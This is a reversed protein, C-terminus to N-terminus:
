SCVGGTLRRQVYLRRVAGGHAERRRRLPGPRDVNGALRTHLHGLFGRSRDRLCDLRALRIADDDGLSDLRKRRLRAAHPQRQLPATAQGQRRAPLHPQSDRRDTPVPDQRALNISYIALHMQPNTIRTVTQGFQKKAPNCFRYLQTVNARLLKAGDFQDQDPGPRRRQHRLGPEECDAVGGVNCPPAYTSWSGSASPDSLMTLISSAPAGSACSTDFYVGTSGSSLGAYEIGDEILRINTPHSPHHGAVDTGIVIRDGPPRTTPSTGMVVPAWTAASGTTSSLQQWQCGRDSIILVQYSAFTGATVGIWTSALDVKFGLGLARTAELSSCGGTVTNADILAGPGSGGCSTIGSRAEPGATAVRGLLVLGAALAVGVVVILRWRRFHVFRAGAQM